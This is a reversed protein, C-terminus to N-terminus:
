RSRLLAQQEPTLAAMGQSFYLQLAEEHADIRKQGELSVARLELPLDDYRDLWNADLIFYLEQPKKPTRKKKAM